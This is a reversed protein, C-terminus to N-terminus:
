SSVAQLPLIQEQKHELDEVVVSNVGVRVIRYRKKLVEGESGVLIDDGDLFFARKTSQRAPSSYGYFKLPIPPPPPKSAATEPKSEQLEPPLPPGALSPKPIIKPEPEKPLPAASFDFLSRAGGEVSVDNLRALLDLRLTPDIASLDRQEAARKPRLSPRFDQLGARAARPQESRPAPRGLEPVPALETDPSFARQTIAPASAPAGAFVNTYVFYGAAVTLIGLLALKKPEAGLKM